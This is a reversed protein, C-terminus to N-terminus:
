LDALARYDGGFSAANIDAPSVPGDPLLAAAPYRKLPYYSGVFFGVLPGNDLDMAYFSTFRDIKEDIGISEM